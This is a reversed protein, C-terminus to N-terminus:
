QLTEKLAPPLPLIGVGEELLDRVEEGSAQGRIGRETAEGRHIRRAEDAFRDGVDEANKAAERAARWWAAKLAALETPADSAGAPAPVAANKEPAEAGPEKRSGALNLRPASPLKVVATDNCVPCAVLDRGLQDRFDEESGFWGEFGHGHGCQLNLVKM